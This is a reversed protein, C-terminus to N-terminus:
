VKSRAVAAGPVITVVGGTTGGTAGGETQTVISFYPLPASPDCDIPNNPNERHSPLGHSGTM